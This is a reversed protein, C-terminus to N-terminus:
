VRREESRGLQNRARQAAVAPASVHEITSVCVIKQGDGRAQQGIAALTLFDYLVREDHPELLEPAEALRRRQAGPQRANRNAEYTTTQASAPENAKEAETGSRSARGRRLQSGGRQPGVIM